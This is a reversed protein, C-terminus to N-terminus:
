YKSRIVKLIFRPLVLMRRWRRPEAILRCLWELGAKRMFFPARKVRGSLVDLSGGVCMILPVNLDKQHKVAWKEQKPSGLGVFLIDPKASRIKDIVIHENLSYGHMTGAVNANLKAAAQEAVGEKGGYLFIRLGKERALDIIRMMLDIGAVREKFKKHLIRGALMLGVGDAPALTAHNIIKALEYDNQAAMIMEPNPTVILAQQHSELLQQVTKVAEKM